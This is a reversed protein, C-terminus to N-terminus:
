VINAITSSRTRLVHESSWRVGGAVLRPEAGKEDDKRKQSVDRGGHEVTRRNIRVDHALINRHEDCCTNEGVQGVGEVIRCELALVGV